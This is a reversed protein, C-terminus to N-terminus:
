FRARRQEFFFLNAVESSKPDTWTGGASFSAYLGDWQSVIPVPPPAKVAMDAALASQTSVAALLASTALLMTQFRSM